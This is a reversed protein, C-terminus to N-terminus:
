FLTRRGVWSAWREGATVVFDKFYTAYGILRQREEKQPYGARKRDDGIPVLYRLHWAALSARICHNRGTFMSNFIPHNVSIM